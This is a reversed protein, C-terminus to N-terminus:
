RAGKDLVSDAISVIDSYAVGRYTRVSMYEDGNAVILLQYGSMDKAPDPFEYIAAHGAVDVTRQRIGSSSDPM